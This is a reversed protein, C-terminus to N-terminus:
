NSPSLERVALFIARVEVFSAHRHGDMGSFPRVHIYALLRDAPGYCIGHAM